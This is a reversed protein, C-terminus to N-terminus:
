LCVVIILCSRPVPYMCCGYLVSMNGSNLGWAVLPDEETGGARGQTAERLREMPLQAEEEEQGLDGKRDPVRTRHQAASSDTQRDTQGDM